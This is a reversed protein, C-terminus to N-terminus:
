KSTKFEAVASDMENAQASVLDVESLCQQASTMNSESITNLETISDSVQNMVIGQEEIASAIRESNAQITEMDNIIQSLSSDLTRSASLTQAGQENCQDINTVVEAMQNQIASVVKTIEETSQHTRSALARVEDAVVAFGRGQEGARAAEIAANLALLNTQEAIEQIINVADGIKDVHNNLSGISEQSSGLISSLQDINNVTSDVVKRGNKANISAQQVGEVAVSTSESIENITLVMEQVSTAMTGTHDAQVHFQEIVHQLENHMSSTSHTLQKSKTQSGSILAEFKDLLMNFHNGIVSLEDKKTLNARLSVNNTRAIEQIALLLNAVQQNITRSIQFIFVFIILVVLSTVTIKLTAIQASSENTQAELAESFAKFQEEVAHSLNRTDGLLGENYKLGIMKAQAIYSRAAAILATANNPLLDPSLVGQSVANDFQSLNVLEDSSLSPRLSDLAKNYAGVLKENSALGLQQYAQVLKNFGAQYATIDRRLQQSSPLDQEKVIVALKEELDFFTQINKNFRDLYKVDKRLLFDKENRRLNLLRIELDAVLLSAQHLQSTTQAFQMTAFVITIVGFIAVVGLSYLKNKINM